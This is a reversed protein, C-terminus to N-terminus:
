AASMPQTRYTFFLTAMEIKAAAAVNKENHKSNEPAGSLAPNSADSLGTSATSPRAKARDNAAPTGAVAAVTAAM